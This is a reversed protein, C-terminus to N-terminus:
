DKREAIFLMKSAKVHGIAPYSIMHLKRLNALARSFASSNMSKGSAAALDRRSYSTPYVSLIVELLNKEYPRLYEFWREHLETLTRPNDPVSTYKRGAQTLTVYGSRPYHVLDKNHLSAITRSFASSKPSQHSLVALNRRELSTVNLSEAEALSQLVRHQSKELKLERSKLSKTFTKTSKRNDSFTEEQKNDLFKESEATKAFLSTRESNSETSKVIVKNATVKVNEVTSDAPLQRLPTMETHTAQRRRANSRSVSKSRENEETTEAEFGSDQKSRLEELLTRLTENAPPTPPVLQGPEPHTSKVPGSQVKIVEQCISPGFAFFAGPQLTKLNLREKSNFGLEEAARKMDNGLTTLGFIRNSCMALLNKNLLALRQTAVVLGFGRKRGRMALDTLAELSVSNSASQPALAQAEDVIVLVHRWHERSLNMLGRVVAACTADRGAEGFESLDLIVNVGEQVLSAAIAEATDSSVNIDGENAALIVYDDFVERLTRFEGEPDIILHQVHGHTGEILTRILWSKGSGSNGQIALKHALMGELNVHVGVDGYPAFSLVPIDKKSQSVM